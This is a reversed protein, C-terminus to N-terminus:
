WKKLYQPSIGVEVWKHSICVSNNSLDYLQSQRSARVGKLVPIFRQEEIVIIMIM